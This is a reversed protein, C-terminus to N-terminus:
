TREPRGAGKGLRAKLAALEEDVAGDTVLEDIEDALTRARGLDFAEVEGEVRDVRREMQEFRVFADDIRRDHVQRRVKLRSAATTHRAVIVKQKARAEGLKAELKAIDEEYKALAEDLHVLEEDLANLDEALRTKEVLAARALDERDKTVALEAKRQWEKQAEGLRQRRREIGKRDAIMRAANSRVEVLTDEMEHVMQRIMKEPDEARDLVATINANIIDSLRSFIGM